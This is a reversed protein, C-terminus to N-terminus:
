IGLDAWAEILRRILGMALPAHNQARAAAQQRHKAELWGLRLWAPPLPSPTALFLLRRRAPKPIAAAAAVLAQKSATRFPTLVELIM